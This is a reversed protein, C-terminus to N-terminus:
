SVFIEYHKTKVRITNFNAYLWLRSISSIGAYYKLVEIM